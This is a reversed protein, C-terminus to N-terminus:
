EGRRSTVSEQLIKSMEEHIGGGDREEVTYMQNIALGWLDLGINIKWDM